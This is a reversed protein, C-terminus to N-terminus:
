ITSDSEKPTLSVHISGGIPSHRIANSLLNYALTEALFKSSSVLEKSEIEKNFNLNREEIYDQLFDVSKNILRHFDVKEIDRFQSNEIKALLLLNKNVRTLRALPIQLEQILESHEESLNEQQFLIDLKSKLLALPTQLEHSANAVFAKQQNYTSINQIILNSITQNLEEFEEIDSKEFQVERNKSLDFSKIKSLINYNSM